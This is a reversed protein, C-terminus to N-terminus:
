LQTTGVPQGTTNYDVATVSALPRVIGPAYTLTVNSLYLLNSAAPSGSETPVLAAYAATAPAQFANSINTWTAAPLNVTTSSTTLYTRSNDFWNVSLSFNAWGTPSYFWGAPTLWHPTGPAPNSVDLSILESSAYAQSTGGTPTLLGSFAYGGHTQANSQTITGNTAVWPTTGTTFTPNSNLAENPMATADCMGLLRGGGDYVLTTARAAAGSSPDEWTHLLPGTATQDYVTMNMANPADTGWAGTTYPARYLLGDPLPSGEIGFQLYNSADGNVQHMYVHYKAGATLGSAPLPISMLPMKYVTAPYYNSGYPFILTWNGDSDQFTLLQWYSPPNAYNQQQWTGIGSPSTELIQVETTYAAGTTVGGVIIMATDTVAVDWQPSGQYVPTLLSPGTRWGSLSGDSNIYSYYTTAYVTGASDQGGAVILWNGVVAACQSYLAPGPLPPGLSWANIQGNSVSAVYVNPNVTGGGIGGIMYVTDGYAAMVNQAVAVPLSTQKSWAGVKGAPRDWSAVWVNATATATTPQGGAVVIAGTTAAAAAYFLAQPLSPQLTPGSLNQDGLYQVTAVVSEATASTSDYGGLFVAYNGSVVPTSYSGAGNPGVAPVNWSKAVTSGLAASNFTPTALLAATDEEGAGVVGVAASLNLFWTAPITTTALPSTTVPNGSGDDSCLSVVLDAAGGTALIPLAVRGVATHGAPMTFPQDHDYDTGSGSWFFAGGNPTVLANGAYGCTIAHTGLHQNIQAAHNVADLDGPMGNRAAEWAPTTPM